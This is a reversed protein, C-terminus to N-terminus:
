GTARISGSVCLSFFFFFPSLVVAFVVWLILVRALAMRQSGALWAADRAGGCVWQILLQRTVLDRHSPRATASFRRSVKTTEIRSQSGCGDGRCSYLVCLQVFLM